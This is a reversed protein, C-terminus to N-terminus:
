CAAAPVVFFLSLGILLMPWYEILTEPVAIRAVIDSILDSALILAAIALLMLGAILELTRSMRQRTYGRAKPPCGVRSESGIRWPILVYRLGAASM